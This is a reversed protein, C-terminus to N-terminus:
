ISEMVEFSINGDMTSLSKHAAFSSSIMDQLEAPLSGTHKLTINLNYFNTNENQPALTGQMLIRGFSEHNIDIIFEILNEKEKRVRMNTQEKSGPIPMEIIQWVNHEPILKLDIFHKSIKSIDDALMAFVSSKASAEFAGVIDQDIWREVDNPPVNRANHFLRALTINHTGSSSILQLFRTYHDNNEINLREDLLINLYPSNESIDNILKQISAKIMAQDFDDPIGVIQFLVKDGMNLNSKANINLMGINSNLIISNHSNGLVEGVIVNIGNAQAKPSLMQITIEDGPQINGYKLTSRNTTVYSVRATFVGTNHSRQSDDNVNQLIYKNLLEIRFKDIKNIISPTDSKSIVHVKIDGDADKTLRIMAKDGEELPITTNARVLGQPTTFIVDGGPRKESITAELLYSTQVKSQSDAVNINHHLLNIGTSSSKSSRIVSM